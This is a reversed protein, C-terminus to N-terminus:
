PAPRTAGPVPARILRGILHDASLIGPGVAIIGAAIAAWYLHFNAWGDPVVLQITATMALLGLAALRTGLGLLLAAPLVIELVATLLATIDPAPISYSQGLIHLKFQEEFLFLTTPSLELFGDWRTFGSRLFPLALAIRLLVPAVYRAWTALTANARRLRHAAARLDLQSM